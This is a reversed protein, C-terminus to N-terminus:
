DGDGSVIRGGGTTEIKVKDSELFTAADYYNHQWRRVVQRFTSAMLPM